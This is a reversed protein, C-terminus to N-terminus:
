IVFLDRNATCDCNNSCKKINSWNKINLSLNETNDKETFGDNSNGTHFNM